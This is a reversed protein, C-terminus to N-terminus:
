YVGTSSRLHAPGLWTERTLDPSLVCPFQPEWLSGWPPPCPSPAPKGCLQSGEMGWMGGKWAM